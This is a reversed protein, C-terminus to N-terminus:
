GAGHECGKVLQRGTESEEVSIGHRVDVQKTKPVGVLGAAAMSGEQEMGIVVGGIRLQHFSTRRSPYQGEMGVRMVGRAKVLVQYIGSKINDLLWRQLRPPPRGAREIEAFIYKRGHESLAEKKVSIAAALVDFIGTRRVPQVSYQCVVM